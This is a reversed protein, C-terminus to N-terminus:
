QKREYRDGNFEIVTSSDCIKIIEDYYASKAKSDINGSINIRVIGVKEDEYDCDVDVECSVAFGKIYKIIESEAAEILATETIKEIEDDVHASDAVDIFGTLSLGEAKKGNLPYILAFVLITSIFTNFAKKISSEPIILSVIATIVSVSMVLKCWLNLKEM